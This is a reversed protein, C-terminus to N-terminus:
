DEDRSDAARALSWALVGFAMFLGIVGLCAMVMALGAETPTM